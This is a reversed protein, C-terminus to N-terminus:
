AHTLVRLRKHSSCRSPADAATAGGDDPLCGACDPVNGAETAEHEPLFAASPSFPLAIAPDLGSLSEANASSLEVATATDRGPGIVLPIPSAKVPYAEPTPTVAAAPKVDPRSPAWLPSDPRRWHSVQQIDFPLQTPRDPPSTPVGTSGLVTAMLCLGLLVQRGQVVSFPQSTRPAVAIWRRKSASPGRASIM